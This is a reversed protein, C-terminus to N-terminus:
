RRIQSISENRMWFTISENSISNIQCFRHWLSRNKSWDELYHFHIWLWLCLYNASYLSFSLPGVFIFRLCLNQIHIFCISEIWASLDFNEIPVCSSFFQLNINIWSHFHFTIFKSKNYRPIIPEANLHILYWGCRYLM